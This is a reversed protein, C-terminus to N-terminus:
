KQNYPIWKNNKFIAYGEYKNKIYEQPHSHRGLSYKIYVIQDEVHLEKPIEEIHNFSYKQQIKELEQDTIFSLRDNIENEGNEGSWSEVTGFLTEIGDGETGVPKIEQKNDDMFLEVEDIEEANKFFQRIKHPSNVVDFLKVTYAFEELTRNYLSPLTLYDKSLDIQDSTYINNLTNIYKEHDKTIQFNFKDFLQIFGNKKPDIGHQYFCTSIANRINHLDPKNYENIIETTLKSKEKNGVQNWRQITAPRIDPVSEKLIRM